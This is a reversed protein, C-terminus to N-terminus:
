VHCSCLPSCSASQSQYWMHAAQINRVPRPPRCQMMRRVRAVSLYHIMVPPYKKSPKPKLLYENMHGFSLVFIISDEPCYINFIISVKNRCITFKSRLFPALTLALSLFSLCAIWQAAYRPLHERVHVHFFPCIDTM